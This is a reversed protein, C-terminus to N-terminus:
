AARDADPAAHHAQPAARLAECVLSGKVGIQEVRIAELGKNLDEKVGELRAEQMASVIIGIVLNLIILGGIIM